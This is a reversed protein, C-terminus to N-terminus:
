SGSLLLAVPLNAARSNPLASKMRRSPRFTLTEYSVISYPLSDCSLQSSNLSGITQLPLITPLAWVVVATHLSKSFCVGPEGLVKSAVQWGLLAWRLCRRIQVWSYWLVQWFAVIMGCSANWLLDFNVYKTWCIKNILEKMSMKDWEEAHPADWPADVPIQLCLHFIWSIIWYEVMAQDYSTLLVSKILKKQERYM